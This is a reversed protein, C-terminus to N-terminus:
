SRNSCAATLSGPVVCRELVRGSLAALQPVPRYGQVNKRGERSFFLYRGVSPRRQHCAQSVAASGTTQLIVPVRRLFCSSKQSARMLLRYRSSRCSQLGAHATSRRVFRAEDVEEQRKKGKKGKRSEYRDKYEEM